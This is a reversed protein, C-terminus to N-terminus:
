DNEEGRLRDIEKRFKEADGDFLIVQRESFEKNAKAANLLHTLEAIRKVRQKPTM